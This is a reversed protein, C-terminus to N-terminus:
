TNMGGFKEVRISAFSFDLLKLQVGSRVKLAPNQVDSCAEPLPFLENMIDTLEAHEILKEDFARAVAAYTVDDHTPGIGGSTIVFSHRRSAARVESSIEAVSDAVVTVRSLKVGIRYLRKCLFSSNTDAIKGKLIEDGIILVSATVDEPDSPSGM